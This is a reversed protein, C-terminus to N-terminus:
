PRQWSLDVTLLVGAFVLARGAAFFLTGVLAAALFTGAFDFPLVAGFTAAFFGTALLAGTVDALLVEALGAVAAGMLDAAGGGVFVAPLGVAATTAEM